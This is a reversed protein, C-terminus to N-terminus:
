WGCVVTRTRGEISIVRDGFDYVKAVIDWQSVKKKKNADVVIGLVREIGGRGCWGREYM